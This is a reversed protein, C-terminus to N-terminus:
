VVLREFLQARVRFPVARERPVGQRPAAAGAAVAGAVILAPSSADVSGDGAGRDKEITAACRCGDCEHGAVPASAVGHPHGADDAGVRATVPLHGPESDHDGCCGAEAAAAVVAGHCGGGCSVLHGCCGVALHLVTAAMTILALASRM